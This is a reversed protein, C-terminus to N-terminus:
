ECRKGVDFAGTSGLDAAAESTAFILPPLEIILEIFPVAVFLPTDGGGGCCCCRRGVVKFKVFVKQPPRPSSGGGGAATAVASLPIPIPPPQPSSFVSVPM